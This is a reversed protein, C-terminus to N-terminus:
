FRISVNLQGIASFTAWTAGEIDRLGLGFMGSISINQSLNAVLGNNVYFGMAWKKTITPPVYIYDYNGYSDYMSYSNNSYSNLVGTRNGVGMFYSVRNQGMPYYNFDVGGYYLFSNNYNYNPDRFSVGFPVKIGVKGDSFLREYNFSFRGAIFDGYNCSFVNPKIEFPLEKKANYLEEGGNEYSISSVRSVSVVFEPGDLNGIKKYSIEKETVQYVKVKLEEGNNFRIVDQANAYGFIILATLLLINKM